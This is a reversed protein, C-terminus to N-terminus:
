VSPSTTTTSSASANSNSTQKAVYIQKVKTNNQYGRERAMPQNRGHFGSRRNHQHQHQQQHHHHSSGSGGVHQSPTNKDQSSQQQQPAPKFSPGSPKHTNNTNPDSLATTPNPPSASTTSTTYSDVMADAVASTQINPYRNPPPPPLMNNSNNYQSSPLNSGDAAEQQKQIQMNPPGSFPMYPWRARVPMEQSSSQFPSPDFMALPSPMPLHQLSAPVINCQMSAVNPNNVDGDGGVPSSSVAPNHKWDPQKGSPIYTTGM